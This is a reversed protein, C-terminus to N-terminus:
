RRRITCKPNPKEATKWEGYLVFYHLFMEALNQSHSASINRLLADRPHVALPVNQSHNEFSLLFIEVCSQVHRVLAYLDPDAKFLLDNVANEDEDQPFIERPHPKACEGMIGWCLSKGTM